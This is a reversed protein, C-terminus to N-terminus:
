ESRWDYQNVASGNDQAWGLTYQVFGTIGIRRIAFNNPTYVRIGINKSFSESTAEIQNINGIIPFMPRMRDVEDRAAAQVSPTRSNLRAFVDAPLDTGPFPANINR